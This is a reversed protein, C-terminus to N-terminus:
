PSSVGLAVAGPRDDAHPDGDRALQSTKRGGRETSELLTETQANWLARSTM